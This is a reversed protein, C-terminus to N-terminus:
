ARSQPVFGTATGNVFIWREDEHQKAATVTESDMASHVIRPGQMPLCTAWVVICCLSAVAIFIGGPLIIIAPVAVLLLVIELCFLWGQIWTDRVNSISIYLEASRDSTRFPLVLWPLYPLMTILVGTDRLLLRLPNGRAAATTTSALGDMQAPIFSIQAMNVISKSLLVYTTSTTTISPKTVLIAHTAYESSVRDRPCGAM